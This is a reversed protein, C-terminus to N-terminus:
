GFSLRQGQIDTVAIGVIRKGPTAQFKSSEFGAYYLWWFVIAFIGNGRPLHSIWLPQGTKLILALMLVALSIQLIFHILMDTTAAVVRRWFGAFLLPQSTSLGFSSDPAGKLFPVAILLVVLVVAVLAVSLLIPLGGGLMLI